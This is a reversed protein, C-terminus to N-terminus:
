TVDGMFVHPLIEDYDSVHENLLRQVGPFSRGLEEVFMKAADCMTPDGTACVTSQPQKQLGPRTQRREIRNSRVRAFQALLTVHIREVGISRTASRMPRNKKAQWGDALKELTPMCALLTM